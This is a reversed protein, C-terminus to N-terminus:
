LTDELLFPNIKLIARLQPSHSVDISHQVVKDCMMLFEQDVVNHQIAKSETYQLMRWLSTFGIELNAAFHGYGGSLSGWLKCKPVNEHM